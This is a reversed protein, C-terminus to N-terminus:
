AKNLRHIKRKLTKITTDLVEREVESEVEDRMQEYKKITEEITTRVDKPGTDELSKSKIYKVEGEPLIGAHANARLIYDIIDYLEDFVLFVEMVHFDYPFKLEEKMYKETMQLLYENNSDQAFFDIPNEDDEVFRYGTSEFIEKM